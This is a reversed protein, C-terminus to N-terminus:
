RRKKLFAKRTMTFGGLPYKEQINLANWAKLNESTVYNIDVSCLPKRTSLTKIEKLLAEECEKFTDFQLDPCLM